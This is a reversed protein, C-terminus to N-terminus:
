PELTIRVEEKPFGDIKLEASRGRWTAKVTFRCGPIRVGGSRTWGHDLFGEFVCRGLRDTTAKRPPFVAMTVGAHKGGSDTRTSTLKEATVAVEASEQVRGDQTACMVTFLTPAGYRLTGPDVKGNCQGLWSQQGAGPKYSYILVEDKERAEFEFQGESTTRLEVASHTAWLDRSTLVIVAADPVPKGDRGLVTVRYSSPCLVAIVVMLLVHRRM